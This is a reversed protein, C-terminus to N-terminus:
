AFAADDSIEPGALVALRSALYACGTMM